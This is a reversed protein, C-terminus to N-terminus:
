EHILEVLTDAVQERRWGTLPEPIADPHRVLSELWRRRMLVEPELQLAAACESVRQKLRKILARQAADPPGPLAAPPTARSGEELLALLKDGDRRLLSPHLGLEKLDEISAPNRQALALLDPDRIIFSRPLDRSRAKEDRWGALTRLRALEVGQLNGAGKVLRWVDQAPVQDAASALLRQCEEQWWATRGLEHLRQELLDSLTKLHVVDLVAYEVQRPSLPRQLWDSRTVDKALEVGTLNQVLRQYSCQMDHGCLAAAIQTDRIEAPLCGAYTRLAELDESCSHMVLPHRQILQALLEGAEFALVDLLVVEDGTNIQVLALKPWFTRERMFETDLYLPQGEQLSALMRSLDDADTIWRYDM